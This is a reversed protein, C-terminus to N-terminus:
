TRPRAHLRPIERCTEPQQNSIILSLVLRSVHRFGELFGREVQGKGIKTFVKAAYAMNSNLDSAMRVEGYSGSGLPTTDWHITYIPGRIQPTPNTSSQDASANVVQQQSERIHLLRWNTMFDAQDAGRDPFRLVISTQVRASVRITWSGRDIKVNGDKVLASHNKHESTVKVPNSSMSEIILSNINAPTASEPTGQFPNYIRFHASSVSNQNTNDLLINSKFPDSGFVIGKDRLKRDSTTIALVEHSEAKKFTNFPPTEERKQRPNRFVPTSSGGKKPARHAHNTEHAQFALATASSDPFLFCIVRSLDYDTM